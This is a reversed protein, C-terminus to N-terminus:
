EDWFNNIDGKKWEGNKVQEFSRKMKETWKIPKETKVGKKELLPIFETHKQLDIHAFSPLGGKTKDITIGAVEM